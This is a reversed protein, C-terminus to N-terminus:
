AYADLSVGRFGATKTLSEWLAGRHMELQALLGGGDELSTGFLLQQADYTRKRIARSLLKELRRGEPLVNGSIEEDEDLDFDLDLGLDGALNRTDAETGAELAKLLTTRASTVFKATEGGGPPDYNFIENIIRFADRVAGALDRARSNSMRAASRWEERVTALADQLDGLRKALFELQEIEVREQELKQVATLPTTSTSTSSGTSLSSLSSSTASGISSM